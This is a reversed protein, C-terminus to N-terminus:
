NPFLLTLNLRLGWDPGGTPSALYLRGGAGVQVPQHGIRLLQTVSMNLPLVTADRLWDHSLEVNVAYNTANRTTYTLFPQVFSASVDARGAAGAISWVHNALAGYTLPGDVKLVVLTPGVGWKGGGLTRDTATPVLLVPGAGWIIGSSSPAKPSFFFSQLLDGLGSQSAGAATVDRQAIIPLVTRSIVNADPSIAVPIVPQINLTYRFGKGDGGLGWDFNNQFPLSILGAVPNATQQALSTGAAAPPEASQALAPGACCAGTAGVILLKRFNRAAM